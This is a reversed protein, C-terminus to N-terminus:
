KQPFIIVQDVQLGGDQNTSIFYKQTATGGSQESRIKIKETVEVTAISSTKNDSIHISETKHTYEYEEVKSFFASLLQLYQERNKEIKKKGEPTNITFVVSFTQSSVKKLTAIDKANSADSIEQILLEVDQETIEAGFLSSIGILSILLLTKRMKQGVYLVIM